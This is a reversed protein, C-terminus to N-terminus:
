VEGVWGEAPRLWQRPAPCRGVWGRGGLDLLVYGSGLISSGVWGARVLIWCGLHQGALDGVYGGSVLSGPQPPRSLRSGLLQVLVGGVDDDVGVSGLDLLVYGSGLISSGVWGARVDSIWCGLHRGALDGVYGGSVLSGPQPPRSLRGVWCYGAPRLWQGPAAGTCWMMKMM